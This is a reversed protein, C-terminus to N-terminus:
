KGRKSEREQARNRTPRNSTIVPSRNPSGRPVGFGSIVFDASNLLGERRSEDIAGSDLLEVLESRFTNPDLGSSQEARRFIEGVAEFPDEALLAANTFGGVLRERGAANGGSMVEGLPDLLGVVRSTVEDRKRDGTDFQVDTPTRLINAARGGGVPLLLRGDGPDEVFGSERFQGLLGGDPQGGGGGGGGDLLDFLPANSVIDGLGEAGGIVTNVVGDFIGM